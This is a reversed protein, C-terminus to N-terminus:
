KVEYKNLESELNPHVELNLFFEKSFLYKSINPNILNCDNCDIFKM